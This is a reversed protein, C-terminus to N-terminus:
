RAQAAEILAIETPDLGYLEFVAENIRQELHAAKDEAMRDKLGGHNAFEVNTNSGSDRLM